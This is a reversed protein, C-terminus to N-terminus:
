LFHLKIAQQRFVDAMALPPPICSNFYAGLILNYSFVPVGVPRPITCKAMCEFHDSGLSVLIYVLFNQQITIIVLTAWKFPIANQSNKDVDSVLIKRGNKVPM